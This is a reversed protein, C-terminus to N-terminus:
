ADNGELPLATARVVLNPTQLRVRGSADRVRLFKRWEALVAAPPVELSEGDDIRSNEATVPELVTLVRSTEEGAEYDLYPVITMLYTTGPKFDSIEV